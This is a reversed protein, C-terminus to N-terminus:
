SYLEEGQRVRAVCVYVCILRLQGGWISLAAQRTLKATQLFHDNTRSLIGVYGSIKLWYPLVNLGVTGCSLCLVLPISVYVCTYKNEPKDNVPPNHITTCCSVLTLATEWETSVESAKSSHSWRDILYNRDNKFIKKISNVHHSDSSMCVIWKQRCLM